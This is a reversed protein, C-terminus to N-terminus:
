RDPDAEEEADEAEAEPEPEEWGVDVDCEPLAADLSEAGEPTVKTQWLYLNRLNKMGKLHSLGADSVGTQYLNLYVLGDLGALHALGSDTVQTKELHLRKLSTLGAVHTLGADTVDTGGLHLGVVENLQGLIELGEDLAVPDPADPSPADHARLGDRNRGLNFSVEIGTANAAIRMVTGGLQEVKEVLAPDLEAQAGSGGEDQGFGPTAMAIALFMVVLFRQM